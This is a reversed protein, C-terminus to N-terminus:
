RKEPAKEAAKPKHAPEPEVVYGLDRLAIALEHDETTGIGNQIALGQRIGTYAANPTKITYM